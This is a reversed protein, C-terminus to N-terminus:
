HLSGKKFKKKLLDVIKGSKILYGLKLIFDRRLMKADKSCFAWKRQPSKTYPREVLEHWKDITKEAIFQKAYERGTRGLQQSIDKNSIIQIIREAIRKDNEELFGTKGNIVTTKLGDDRQRSVVPLGHTEMEIASLCFTEDRMYHSPNVIGVRFSSIYLDIHDWGKAGLFHINEPHNLKKLRKQIIRDYYKDAVKNKELVVNSNWVNAGGFIYLQAHPLDKEVYQWIELLNHVGKQPMLSGVYVAKEESYDTLKANEYFHAPIINNIFTCKGFCPTDSMNKYQSESVCVIWKISEFESAIRQRKANLTNHAWLIIGVSTNFIRRDVKDAVNSNFVLTYISHTECYRIADEETEVYDKCLSSDVHELHTNTLLISYNNGYAHNLEKITLLFLYQTGGIGPNGLSLNAGEITTQNNKLEIFFAIEPM